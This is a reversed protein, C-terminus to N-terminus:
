QPVYIDLDAYDPKVGDDSNEIEKKPNYYEKIVMYYGSGLLGGLLVSYIVDIINQCGIAMRSWVTILLILSLLIFNIGDFLNRYYMDSILFAWVFSIIETHPAPLTFFQDGTRVIACNILDETQFMYRAGLMILENLFLGIFFLFGRPDYFFLGLILSGFYFGIPLLRIITNIISKIQLSLLSNM